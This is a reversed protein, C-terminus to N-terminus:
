VVFYVLQPDLNEPIRRARASDLGRWTTALSDALRYAFAMYESQYGYDAKAGGGSPSPAASNNGVYNPVLGRACSPDYHWDGTKWDFSYLPLFRRGFSAVFDVADLVFEAEETSTYYALSVRTWGPRVGHYGQMM